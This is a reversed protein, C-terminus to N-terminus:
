TLSRLKWPLSFASMELEQRLAVSGVPEPISIQALTRGLENLMLTIEAAAAV